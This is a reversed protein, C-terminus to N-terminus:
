QESIRVDTLTEGTFDCVVDFTLELNFANRASFSSIIQTRGDGDDRFDVDWASMEFTSPHNTRARAADKCVGFAVGKDIPAYVAFDRGNDADATSFQVTQYEEGVCGVMFMSNPGDSVKALSARDIAECTSREAMIRNIVKVVRARDSGMGAPWEFDASTFVRRGNATTKAPRLASTPVWGRWSRVDQPVLTRVESWGGLRCVERVDFEQDIKAPFISGALTGKLEKADEKPGMRLVQERQVGFDTQTVIGTGACKAGRKADAPTAKFAAVHDGPTANPQQIKGDEKPGDISGGSCQSVMLSLVVVAGVIPLCGLLYDSLTLDSWKVPQEETKTDKVM